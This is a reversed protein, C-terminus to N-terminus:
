MVRPLAYYVAAVGVAAMLIMLTQATGLRESRLGLLVMFGIFALLVPVSDEEAM